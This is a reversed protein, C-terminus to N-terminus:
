FRLALGGSVGWDPSGNSLGRTVSGTLKLVRTLKLEAGVRVELPDDQGPAVSTAGDLFAFVSFPRVIAYAAGVSWGFSNRLDSGPPDGIFTYSVTLFGYLGGILNKSLDIGITEDYEGTGLGRDRDATPFKIKVYPEIEPAVVGERLIVFSVKGLVDGLGEETASSAPKTLKGKQQKRSAVGGGTLVVNQNTQYIFPVTVDLWLRDIPSVGFTFPAYVITTNKGTGYDGVTYNVSTAFHFWARDDEALAPAAALLLAFVVTMVLARYGM